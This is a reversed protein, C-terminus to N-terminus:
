FPKCDVFVDQGELWHDLNEDLAEFLKASGKVLDVIPTSLGHRLLGAALGEKTGQASALIPVFTPVKPPDAPNAFVAECVERDISNFGRCALPRVPYVACRGNELYPCAINRRSRERGNLGSTEQLVNQVRGQLEQQQDESMQSLVYAVINAVEPVTAAVPPYCCYDCGERCALEPQFERHLTEAVGECNRVAELGLRVVAMPSRDQSLAEVAYQEVRRQATHQIEQRASPVEPRFVNRLKKAKKRGSSKGM